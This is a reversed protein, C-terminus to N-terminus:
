YVEDANRYQNVKDKLQNSINQLDSAYQRGKSKLSGYSSEFKSGSKGKWDECVETMLKDLSNMIDTTKSSMKKYKAAIGEIEEAHVLIEQNSGGYGCDM